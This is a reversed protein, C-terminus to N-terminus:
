AFILQLKEDETEANKAGTKFRAKAQQQQM